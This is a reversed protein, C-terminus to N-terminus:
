YETIRAAGNTGNWIGDIRGSYVPSPLEYYGGAPIQVTYSITSATTGFKLYLIKTSDNYFTSMKRSANSSLLTVSAPNGTVSTVTASSVNAIAVPLTTQDSAITIPMSSAMVTQGLAAPIGADISALSAIETVQNASTAAGTPLSVTGSINNINWTGSQAANVAFATNDSAIAVRLVGTGAIGNGVSVDANGIQAISTRLCGGLTLSLPDTTGTSYTPRNTTTAAQLLPGVQGSTTSGQAVAHTALTAETAAGSPLPLSVASIPQTVASGDVSLVGTTSVKFARLNTGDTGGVFTASAPVSSGTAGISANTATISGSVPVPTARLQADTLPGSVPLPNTLKSDISILSANGSTQLASTSAGSPLPLAAASIPQTVASGDVLLRNSSVTLNAPIKSSLTSLTTETAAGAPLPLSSVSIPQTYGSGNVIWPTTGQFVTSSGTFTGSVPVPSARLQADTLPGTVSIPSNLKGSIATLQAIELVQNSSTAAGSPLPIGESAPLDIYNDSM